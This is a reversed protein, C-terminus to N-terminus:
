VNRRVIRPMIEQVMQTGKLFLNEPRITLLAKSGTQISETETHSIAQYNFASTERESSRIDNRAHVLHKVVIQLEIELPGSLRRQGGQAGSTCM